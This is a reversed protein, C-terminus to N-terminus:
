PHCMGSHHSADRYTSSSCPHSHCACNQAGANERLHKSSRLTWCAATPPPPMRILPLWSQRDSTPPNQAHPSRSPHIQLHGSSQATRNNLSCSWCPLRLICNVKNEVVLQAAWGMRLGLLSAHSNDLNRTLTSAGFGGTEGPFIRRHGSLGELTTMRLRAYDGNRVQNRVLDRFRM